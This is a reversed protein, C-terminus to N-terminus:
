EAIRMGFDAILVPNGEVGGDPVPYEPHPLDRGDPWDEM